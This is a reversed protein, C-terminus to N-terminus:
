RLLKIEVVAEGKLNLPENGYVSNGTTLNIISSPKLSKWVFATQQPASEPNFLRVIFANKELPTISTVVVKNNTLELLGDNFKKNESVPYSLLPESFEVAAKEIESNNIPGHPRLAYRFHTVGNQDAKYNTHWYNNMVYSFWTSTPTGTTKWEKHSQNITRREDIIAGPEILPAEQIMWQIGRDSNSIEMWRRTYLFDMNSGPLQDSLYKMSGYGADLITNTLAGNFPFGFHVSEKERVSKKDIINEIYVEDSGAYLSIRRDLGNCGPADSIM